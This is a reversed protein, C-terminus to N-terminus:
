AGHFCVPLSPMVGSARLRSVLNSHDAEPVAVKGGTLIGEIGKTCFRCLVQEGVQSSCVAGGRVLCHLIIYLAAAPWVSLLGM